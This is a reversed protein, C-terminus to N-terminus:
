FGAKDSRIQMIKSLNIYNGEAKIEKDKFHPYHPLM